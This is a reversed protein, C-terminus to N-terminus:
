VALQDLRAAVIADNETVGSATHTWLSVEVRNYHVSFDPHHDEAEAVEALKNVYRMAHAFDPFHLSRQLRTQDESLKWMPIEPLILHLQATSLRPAEPRCHRECLKTTM